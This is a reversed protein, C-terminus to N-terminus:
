QQNANPENPAQLAAGHLLNSPEALFTFSFSAHQGHNRIVTELALTTHPARAAPAHTDTVCWTWTIADFASDETQPDGPVHWCPLNGSKSHCPKETNLNILESNSTRWLRKAPRSTPLSLIKQLLADEIRRKTMKKCVYRELCSVRPVSNTLHIVHLQFCTQFPVQRSVDAQLLM